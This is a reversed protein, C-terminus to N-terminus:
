SVVTTELVTSLLVLEYFLVTAKGTTNTINPPRTVVVSSAYVSSEFGSVALEGMGTCLAHAEAEAGRSPSM